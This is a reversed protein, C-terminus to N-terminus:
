KEDCKERSDPSSCPLSHTSVQCCVATDALRVSSGREESTQLLCVSAVFREGMWLLQLCGLYEICLVNAIFSDALHKKNVTNKM